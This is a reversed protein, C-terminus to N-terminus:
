LHGSNTAVNEMGLNELIYGFQYKQDSFFGDPLGAENQHRLLTSTKLFIKKTM